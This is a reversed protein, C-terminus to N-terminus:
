ENSDLKNFDYKCGANNKTSITNTNQEHIEEKGEVLWNKLIKSVYGPIFKNKKQATIQMAEKTWDLGYQEIFTKLTTLDKTISENPKLEQWYKCLEIGKNSLSSNEEKSEKSEKVKSEKVKSQTNKGTTIENCPTEEKVLKTEVPLFGDTSDNRSNIVPKSPLKSKRNNYVPILNKVFNDSWILRKEWLGSDIADLDALKKLINNALDESVHTKALLFEWDATNRCDYVHGDTVGLLELVKFWFAYGDNGFNNELIFMTKGSNVYHPFYEVTQKKPRAM